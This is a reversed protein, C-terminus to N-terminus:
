SLFILINTIMFILINSTIRVVLGQIWHCSWEAGGARGVPDGKLLCVNDPPFHFYLMSFQFYLMTKDPSFIYCSCFHFHFFAPIQFTLENLAFSLRFLLPNNFWKIKCNSINTSKVIYHPQKSEYEDRAVLRVFKVLRERFTNVSILFFLWRLHM